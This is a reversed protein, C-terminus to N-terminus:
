GEDENYRVVFLRGQDHDLPDTPIPKWRYNIDGDYTALKEGDLSVNGFLDLDLERDASIWQMGEWAWVSDDEAGDLDLDIRWFPRYEALADCGPGHSIFRPEWTGDEYFHIIQEYRYCCICNPWDFPETFLQRVSFGDDFETVQTGYKPPVTSNSGIEDRYGGPWSPYFAEVQGIKASSFIELGAYKVDYFNVGDHATMQWCVEWGDQDHCGDNWPPVNPNLEPPESFERQARGRSYFTRAVDGEQMNVVVHFVRGSGAPDHFTLDVCWDASCADDQLWTSMPVMLDRARRIDGLVATVREDGNAIDLVDNLITASPLPRADQNDWSDVVVDNDNNIVVEITGGDDYNYYTLHTCNDNACGAARWEASEAVGLDNAYLFDTRKDALLTAVSPNTEVVDRMHLTRASPVAYSANILAGKAAAVRIQREPPQSRTIILVLVAVVAVVTLRVGWRLLTNKQRVPNEM